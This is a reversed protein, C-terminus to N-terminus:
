RSRTAKTGGKRRRTKEIKVATIKYDPIKAREDVRDLTLLNAAAEAFHFPIFITGQPSRGTVLVRLQIAGRRSSVEV